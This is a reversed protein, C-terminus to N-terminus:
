RQEGTNIGTRREVEICAQSLVDCLEQGTVGQRAYESVGAIIQDWADGRAAWNPEPIIRVPGSAATASASAHKIRYLDNDHRTLADDHDALVANQNGNEDRLRTVEQQLDWIANNLALFRQDTDSMQRAHERRGFPIPEVM